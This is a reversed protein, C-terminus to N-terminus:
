VGFVRQMQAQKQAYYAVERDSVDDAPIAVHCHQAGNVTFGVRDAEIWWSERCVRPRQMLLHGCAHPTFLLVDSDLSPAM